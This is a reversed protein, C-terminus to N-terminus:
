KAASAIDVRALFPRMWQGSFRLWLHGNAMADQVAQCGRLSFGVSRGSQRDLFVLWEGHHEFSPQRDFWDGVDVVMRGPKREVVADLLGGLENAPTNEREAAERIHEDVDVADLRTINQSGRLWGGMCHIDDGLALGGLMLTADDSDEVRAYLYTPAALLKDKPLKTKWVGEPRRLYLWADDSGWMPPPWGPIPDIVIDRQNSEEDFSWEARIEVAMEVERDFSLPKGFLRTWQGLPNRTTM